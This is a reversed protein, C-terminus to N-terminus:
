SENNSLFWFVKNVGSLPMPERNMMLEVLTTTYPHFFAVDQRGISAEFQIVADWKGTDGRGTEVRRSSYGQYSVLETGSSAIVRLALTDPQEQELKGLDVHFCRYSPDERYAHVDLDFAELRRFAGATVTGVEMFYDRIGDGREDVARVVFQQWRKARASALAQQSYSRHRDTWTDYDAATTVQLAERVMSVLADSPEQLIDGHNHDPLFVTPVAVNKWPEIKIRQRGTAEVTLDVRVKRSNFGAGAWRVTGDTGPETVARKLWGYDKLGVFIFPYPTASSRGYVAPDALFDRHALDWTYASGLELARLVQDGAEMFDPGPQRGGKFIAGLWSRGKHAMPSGFTAPALGILHKLRQQRLRSLDPRLRTGVTGALWERVVLMGTSHVIADFPEDDALGADRLARDFGEAIDKVSVENSLSVYNGLHIATANEENRGLLDRWKGFSKGEDSYGHVLVINRQPM